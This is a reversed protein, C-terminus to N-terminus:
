SLLHFIKEREQKSNYVLTIKGRNQSGNIQLKLNLKNVIEKESASLKTSLDRRLRKKPNLRNHIDRVSLNKSVVEKAFSLQKEKSLSLLLKAHGTTITGSAVMQQVEMDLNLLRISNSITARQMGMVRAIEIHKLNFTKELDKYAKAKDIPNLDERQINEIMALQLLQQETADRVVVPVFDINSKKAAKLRREGAILEYKKDKNKTVILPQIIGNERISDTLEQLKIPDFSKRPQYRNSVIKDTKITTVSESDVSDVPMILAELGKGLRDTM